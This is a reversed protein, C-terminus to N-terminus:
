CVVLVPCCSYTHCNSIPSCSFPRDAELVASSIRTLHIILNHKIHHSYAEGKWHLGEAKISIIGFRFCIWPSFFHSYNICTNWISTVFSEGILPKLATQADVDHKSADPEFQEIYVRITAGASGTGQTCSRINSTKWLHYILRLVLPNFM